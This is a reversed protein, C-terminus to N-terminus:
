ISNFIAGKVIEVNGEKCMPWKLFGGLRISGIRQEVAAGEETDMRDFATWKSKFVYQVERITWIL